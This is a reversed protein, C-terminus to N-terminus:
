DLSRNSLNIPIKNFLNFGTQKYVNSKNRNYELFYYKKLPINKNKQLSFILDSFNIKCRM